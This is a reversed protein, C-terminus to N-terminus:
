SWFFGKSVRRINTFVKQKLSHSTYKTNHSTLDDIQANIIVQLFQPYILFKSLSDVNRVMIDFIYKSFNFTRGTALCIVASAMSYSFENWTTRKASICHVLTHILLKCQASFFAKYFMLKPPPKEYGIRVLDVFIEENPLCEVGNADDLHLDQRIVDETVVVKKEDILSCLQVVDNVKKITSLAWFQKICSVYITPNVVLAYQITHVNLFDIIQDFDACLLLIGLLLLKLDGATVGIGDKENFQYKFVMLEILELSDKDCRPTNVGLAMQKPTDLEKSSDLLQNQIWLLQTYCSAAAVYEAETLSTAVDTQKKCQWSILRYGLFQCGGTTFKRDLSARAYDITDPRSPTLYMLSGIMPRYIHVDIDEGDPDKLLPKEIEIPTSASKVDTFGFKRLIEAVYKDQSIFIGDDKQKVQLRLFFTLEGISSMQFKDKKLKEFAKCLKKNTSGFIIDDVYVQVLLIDRKQKKIFLTQDIKGRQFRNGLLYNALTKYWARPAQHLGCLAKVVKYFKDLYDPYTHFDEDNIQHLGGQEKVMKTMSRTQPTSNLDSIIQNVLHDKHVRTTLILSVSINIELNSFDAEVVLNFFDAEVGVDEEDDSYVIDELEPMNNTSNTPNPRVANVPTSVANAKNTSNFSFEEFEARLDRVRTPLGVLSKGKDDRKAKDNHKKTKDSETLSVHVEDENEADLNEKICANVNPQNGAVVPQYNMSKTLTDIDFLWTPGIGVVNPQNVLFNIHLIEQVIRTGSNFVRFAKSNISYGVLFGEDARNQVYCATNVAKAWFPIPLLSDALMTRAAEILTRNKREAVENQQPTRAVSFERKIGKMRGFLKNMTKFNIHRLRKHWLNSKDLIAKAFLCTLDELPVVNKLDVNYMNNERPVRLLVHNEDPLKFDSSLVVCETDTFLVNNKKDCMQSVSFLNFKLEKVFYVDDFDLKGTNIKCKGLIKGGKPNGGFAVYRGNFEEFDLLFSINGTMHRSCGSDIVGKDKLAQQPNGKNVKVTTVKKNFNSNKTAPRHNIPRRIPSHAKKVVHKVPRLSKVTSQSIATPVPRAANFSVLGKSKQNDTRLTKTQKSHEVNKVTERHTKVHKFTPVFSPEKHKSVSEIESEDESDFTWDEIIPADPRLTKSMDKSPKNSSSEVNVVNAILESTTPADNFVLDHKPPKFTRTYPPYVAHYGEGTKYRDNMLSTPVSDDSEYSLLEECDFVQRDFVQSDFGTKYLLVEFQSKRFDVALKDYHSQLSAYAKSCAKSSPAVKNDSGLSSSSCQSVLANSTSAEVPVTRRPTDKNRNDRPSRCEKAFHGKRHCNYCEVKSMDFGIAAKGNAGLNRETKQLFRRARITLIAMQWKLDMEKAFFSYIVADSLSDLNLLSSVTAKSSAASVSPVVNVSENTNDTNNSSVFAINQINHSSTSSSKVEAEYIKLNNFLDDLSQEELDAKNRKEIAEKLSKADKHINFKLQHKDPLAMLLTGRVKLENKKALRQETTTPSIVQVVGDVIKTPTPSEDNMIVDWLSYDTMLFYREIRMKWLYFENPNLIPLKASAVVQPNLSEM